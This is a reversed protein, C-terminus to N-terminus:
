CRLGFIIVFAFVALVVVLVPNSRHQHGCHPCTIADNAIPKQCTKCTTMTGSTRPSPGAIPMLPAAAEKVQRAKGKARQADEKARRAEEKERAQRTEAQQRLAEKQQRQAQLEKEGPVTFKSACNPCTDATGAEDLPSTLGSHCTPCPYLVHVKGFLGKEITYSM